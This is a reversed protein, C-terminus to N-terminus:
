IIRGKRISCASAIFEAIGANLAPCGRPSPIPDITTPFIINPLGLLKTVWNM